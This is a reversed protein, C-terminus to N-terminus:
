KMGTTGKREKKAFRINNTNDCVLRTQMRKSLNEQNQRCGQAVSAGAAQQTSGVDPRLRHRSGVAGNSAGGKSLGSAWRLEAARSAVKLPQM